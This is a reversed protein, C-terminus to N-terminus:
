FLTKKRQIDVHCVQRSWWALSVTTVSGASQTMLSGGGGTSYLCSEGREHCCLRSRNPLSSQYPKIVMVINFLLPFVHVASSGDCTFSDRFWTHIIPNFSIFLTPYGFFPYFLNSPSSTSFLLSPFLFRMYFSSFSLPLSSFIKFISFRRNLFNVVVRPFFYFRYCSRCFLICFLSIVM